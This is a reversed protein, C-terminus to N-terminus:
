TFYKRLNIWIQSFLFDVTILFLFWFQSKQIACWCGHSWFYYNTIVAWSAVSFISFIRSQNCQWYNLYSLIRIDIEFKVFSVYIHLDWSREAIQTWTKIGLLWNCLNNNNNNDDFYGNATLKINIIIFM